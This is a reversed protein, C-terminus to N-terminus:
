ISGILCPGENLITGNGDTGVVANGTDVQATWRYPSDTFALMMCMEGGANGWYIPNTTTNDYDCSFTFETSGAVDIPPVFTKGLAGGIPTANQFITTDGMPGGSAGVDMGRGYGHYHPLAYYVKFDLTQGNNTAAVNCRATFRSKAMPPLALPQYMLATAHLKVAVENKPITKVSLTIATQLAADGANVLHIDGIFRAHRPVVFAAGAQFTQEDHLTQTSQAFLVGGSLGAQVIDFNRTACDWTGDAGPFMTDPVFVWNSHHWAPGADMVVSNVYIPEENNLTVSQCIDLKEAHADISLAPFAFVRTQPGQAGGGSKGCGSSAATAVALAVGGLVVMLRWTKM